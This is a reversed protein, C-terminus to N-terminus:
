VAANISSRQHTPRVPPAGPTADTQEPANEITFFITAGVLDLVRLASAPPAVLVLEVTESATMRQMSVLVRLGSLGFFTVGSLDLELRPPPTQLAFQLAAAMLDATSLDIEGRMRLVTTREDGTVEVCLSRPDGFRAGEIPRITM